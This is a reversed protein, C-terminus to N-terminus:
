KGTILDWADKISDIEFFKKLFTSSENQFRDLAKNASNQLENHVNDLESKSAARKLAGANNQAWERVLDDQWHTDMPHVFYSVAVQAPDQAGLKAHWQGLMAQGVHLVAKEALHAALLHLPHEAHDKALQSHSPDTSGNTNPDEGLATQADDVSNGFLTSLGQMATGIANGVIRGPAGIVHFIEEVKSAFSLDAWKDRASLFSEHADNWKPNPHEGLLIQLIEDRRYREGSRTPEFPKDDTSFLIKGLPAALSAIIDSGGFTGTVLPLGHKCDARSTWPLVDSYGLKILSLEVFNSHAFFDELVHLACGFARLGDASERGQQKAFDIEATMYDVSRQIYKKMSTERDVQLADDDPAVWDEFDVDIAKPDSRKSSAPKPNDIHEGARYVGLKEPTVTFQERDIRMLDTFERVALVDVINTLAERSLADPFNKPTDVARVIKPDLLQSYDRLWNGYYIARIQFYDFGAKELIAEISGHTAKTESGSGSGAEFRAAVPLPEFQQNERPHEASDKSPNM